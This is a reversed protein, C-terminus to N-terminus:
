GMNRRYRVPADGQIVRVRVEPRGAGDRLHSRWGCDSKAGLAQHQRLHGHGANLKGAKAATRRKGCPHRRRQFDRRLRVRENGHRLAAHIDCGNRWSGPQHAADGRVEVADDGRGAGFQFLHRRDGLQGIASVNEQLKFALRRCRNQAFVDIDIECAARKRGAPTRRGPDVVRGHQDDASPAVQKLDDNM